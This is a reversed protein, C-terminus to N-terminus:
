EVKLKTMECAIKSVIREKELTLARLRQLLVKQERFEKVLEIRENSTYGKLVAQQPTLDTKSSKALNCKMCLVQYNSINNFGGLSRPYIHDKTLMVEEGDANVGYFNIFCYRQKKDIKEIAAFQAKMGCCKCELGNKYLNEYRDDERRIKIGEIEIKKSDLAEQTKQYIEKIIDTSLVKMRKYM